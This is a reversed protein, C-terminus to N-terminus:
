LSRRPDTFRRHVSPTGAEDRSVGFWSQGLPTDCCIWEVRWVSPRCLLLLEVTGDAQFEHHDVAGDEHKLCRGFQFPLPSWFSVPVFGDRANGTEVRVVWFRATGLFLAVLATLAFLSKISFRLRPLGSPAYVVREPDHTAM